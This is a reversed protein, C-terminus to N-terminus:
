TGKTADQIIFWLTNLRDLFQAANSPPNNCIVDVSKKATEYRAIVTPSIRPRLIEVFSEAVHIIGCARPIDNQALRALANNANDTATVITGVTQCGGLALGAALTLALRSM